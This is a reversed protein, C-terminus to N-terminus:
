ESGLGYGSNKNPLPKVKGEWPKSGKRGKMEGGMREGEKRKGWKARGLGKRMEREWDKGRGL